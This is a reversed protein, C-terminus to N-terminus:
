HVGSIAKLIEAPLELWSTDPKYSSTSNENSMVGFMQAHMDEYDRYQGIEDHYANFDDAKCYAALAWSSCELPLNLRLVAAAVEPVAYYRQRGHTKVLEAGVAKGFAGKQYPTMECPPM